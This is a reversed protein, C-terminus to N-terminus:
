RGVLILVLTLIIVTTISNFVWNLVPLQDAVVLKFQNYIIWLAWLSFLAALIGKVFLALNSAYYGAGEYFAQEM